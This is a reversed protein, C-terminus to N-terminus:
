RPAVKRPKAREVSILTHACVTHYLRPTFQYLLFYPVANGNERNKKVERQVNLEIVRFATADSTARKEVGSGGESLGRANTARAAHGCRCAKSCAHM